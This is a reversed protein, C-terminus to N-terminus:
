YGERAPRPPRVETAGGPVPPPGTPRGARIWADYAKRLTEQAPKIGLTQTAVRSWEEVTNGHPDALLAGWWAGDVWVNVEVRYGCDWVWYGTQSETSVWMWSWEVFMPPCNDPMTPHETTGTLVRGEVSSANEFECRPFAKGRAMDRLVKLVDSRCEGIQRWNGALCLLVKCGDVAHAASACAILLAVLANRVLAPLAHRSM